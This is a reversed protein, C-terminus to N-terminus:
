HSGIPTKSPHPFLITMRLSIWAGISYAIGVYAPVTVRLQAMGRLFDSGNRVFYHGFERWSYSDDTFHFGGGFCYHFAQRFDSDLIMTPYMGPARFVFFFALIVVPVLWVFLVVRSRLFRAASFGAVIGLASSLGLLHSFMFQFLNVHPKPGSLLVLIRYLYDVFWPFSLRAVAYLVALHLIGEALAVKLGFSHTHLPTQLQLSLNDM